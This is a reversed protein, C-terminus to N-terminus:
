PDMNDTLIVEEQTVDDVEIRCGAEIFLENMTYGNYCMILLFAPLQISYALNGARSGAVESETASKKSDVEM